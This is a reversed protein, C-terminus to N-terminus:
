DVGERVAAWAAAAFNEVAATHPRGAEFPADPDHLLVILDQLLQGNALAKPKGRRQPERV